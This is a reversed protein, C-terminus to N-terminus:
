MPLSIIFEAGQLSSGNCIAIGGHSEIVRRVFGLGLGTGIKKGPRRSFFDEFIREGLDSPIGPGNDKYVITAVNKASARVSDISINIQMAKPDPAADRSNQILELLATEFLPSDICINFPRKQCHLVWATSPLSARLTREIQAALDVQGMKPNVPALLQNAQKITIFTRDLIHKFDENLDKLESIQDEYDEYDALLGPLSGLRTGINHALTAMIREAVAVSMTRKEEGFRRFADLLRAFTESLVKLYVFNEPQLSEDCQLCIKGLVNEPGTMLPFDIWFDGPSKRTHEPQQPFKWNIARLGHSTIVHADDDLEERWCFVTPEGREICLWDNHEKKSRPTLIVRGEVFDEEMSKDTYGFCVKSVFQQVGNVDEKVLYLRGWRHGLEKAAELMYNLAAPTDSAEAIRRSAEFVKYLYTSDQIRLLAGITKDRWDKIINSVVAGHYHPDLGIGEVHSALRYGFSLSEHIIDVIPGAKEKTIPRQKQTQDQWGVPIDLLDSAARNAYRPRETRDVIFIPDPIKNLGSELLNVRHCQEIAIALQEGFIMLDRVEERSPIVNGHREVLITGIAENTPNLIPVVGFAKMSGARVVKQDAIKSRRADKIILEEKSNIVHSQISSTPDSLPYCILEAVSKLPEECDDLVGELMEKEPDVLCFLARRYNLERLGRGAMALIHRVSVDPGRLSNFIDNIVGIQKERARSRIEIQNITVAHTYAKVFHNLLRKILKERERSISPSKEFDGVVVAAQQDPSLTPLIAAAAYRNLPGRLPLYGPTINNDIPLIEPIQKIADDSVNFAPLPLYQWDGGEQWVDRYWFTVDRFGLVYRCGDAFTGKIKEFVSKSNEDLNPAHTAESYLSACLSNVTADVENRDDNSSPRIREDPSLKDYYEFATDWNNISANLDGFRRKDYCQELFEQMIPSALQLHAGEDQFVRVAVGALELHGPANEQAGIEVSENQILNELDNWCVPERDILQSAHRFIHAGYIGPSGSRFSKPVEEITLTKDAPINNNSRSEAVIWLLIRLLYLNGGTIEWFHHLINEQPAFTFRFNGAYRTLGKCFEEEDYGQVVFQNACNFESKPGYVLEHFDHEGSMVAILQGSQDLTRVGELFSRALHHAMGDVNSALLIVPKELAAALRKIPETLDDYAQLDDFSVHPAANAAAQKILAHVREETYLPLNDLFRLDIIPGIKQEDMFRRLLYLVHRKGGYRAGILVTSETAMVKEALQQIFSDSIREYYFLSMIKIQSKLRKWLKGSLASTTEPM